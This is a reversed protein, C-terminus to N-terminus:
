NNQIKPYIINAIKKASKLSVRWEWLWQTFSPNDIGQQWNATGYLKIIFIIKRM